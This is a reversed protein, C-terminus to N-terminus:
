LFGWETSRDHLEFLNNSWLHVKAEFPLHDQERSYFVHWCFFVESQRSRSCLVLLCCIHKEFVRSIYTVIVRFLNILYYYILYISWILRWAFTIWFSPNIKSDMEPITFTPVFIKCLKSYSVLINRGYIICVPNHLYTFFIASSVKFVVQSFTWTYYLKKIYEIKESTSKFSKVM